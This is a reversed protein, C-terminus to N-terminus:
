KVMEKIEAKIAKAKEGRWARANSLFYNLIYKANDAGYKDTIKDLSFMAELYPKAAYNVKKGWDNQIDQAITAISRFNKEM